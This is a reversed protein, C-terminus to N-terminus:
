AGQRALMPSGAHQFPSPIGGICLWLGAALV